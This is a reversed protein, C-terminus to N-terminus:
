KHLIARLPFCISAGHYTRTSLPRTSDSTRLKDFHTNSTSDHMWFLNIYEWVGVFSLHRVAIRNRMKRSFLITAQDRKANQLCIPDGNKTRVTSPLHQQALGKRGSTHQPTALSTSQLANGVTGLRTSKRKRGQCTRNLNKSIM